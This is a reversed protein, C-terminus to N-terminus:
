SLLGIWRDDRADILFVNFSGKVTLTAPKSKKQGLANTAQCVYEGQDVKQTSSIYLSGPEIVRRRKGDLQLVVGDKIWSVTPTPKGRPPNCKLTVPNGVTVTRGRPETKFQSKLM